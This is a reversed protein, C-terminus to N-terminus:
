GAMSGVAGAIYPILWIAWVVISFRHFTHIERPRGRALVVIAWVLHVAMLLIAFTGTWAMLVNAATAEVGADRRESAISNMLLTGTTDAALGLAFFLVHWWRLTKQLREGWVGITYFVLALTITVIALPLM